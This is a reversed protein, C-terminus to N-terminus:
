SRGGSVGGTVGLFGVVAGATLIFLGYAPDPATSNTYLSALNTVGVIAILVALVALTFWGAGPLRFAGGSLSALMALGILALLGGAILVSLGTFFPHFGSQAAFTNQYFDGTTISSIDSTIEKNVSDWGTFHQGGFSIWPLFVSVIMAAGGLVAAFGGLGRRSSLSTSTSM